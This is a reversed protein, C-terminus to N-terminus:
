PVAKSNRGTGERVRETAILERKCLHATRICVYLIEKGMYVSSSFVCNELNFSFPMRIPHCIDYELIKLQGGSVM